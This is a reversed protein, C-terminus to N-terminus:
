CALVGQIVREIPPLEDLWLAPSDDLQLASARGTLLIHQVYEVIQRRANTGM